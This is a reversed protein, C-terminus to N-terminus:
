SAAGGIELAGNLYRRFADLDHIQHEFDMSPLRHPHTDRTIYRAAVPPGGDPEDDGEIGALEAYRVRGADTDLHTGITWLRAFRYRKRVEAEAAASWTITTYAFDRPVVGLNEELIGDCTEMEDRILAGTPDKRALYALSIHHHMHAGIHWGADILERLNDWTMYLRNGIKEMAITNIFITATYGYKRMVPFVERHICRNPHDFDFMIPRDPLDAGARWAALDDYSISHFRLEAAVGILADFYAADIPPIARWRPRPTFYRGRNTGHSITIPVRATM